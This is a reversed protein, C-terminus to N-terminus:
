AESTRQEQRLPLWLSVATGKDVESEMHLQGMHGEIINRCIALGLGTGRPKGKTFFPEFVHPLLDAPIGKGRDKVKVMIGPRSNQLLEFATIEIPEGGVPSAEIANQLVNILVQKLQDQDAYIPGLTPSISLQIKIRREGLSVALIKVVEDILDQVSLQTASLERPRAYDVIQNVIRDLRRTEKLIGGIDDRRPDRQEFEELLLSATSGIGVLPNRIEHAIGAAVQGLTALKESRSVRSQLDELATIDINFGIYVAVGEGEKTIPIRRGLVKRIGGDAHVFRFVTEYPRGQEVAQAFETLVRERDEPHICKRFAAPDTEEDPNLGALVQNYRNSFTVETGKTTLIGLPAHDVLGRYKSESQALSENLLRLTAESKEVQNLHERIQSSMAHMVRTLDGIEDQRDLVPINPVVGESASGVDKALNTLPVTISRAILYLAGVILAFTLVGGVLIIFLNSARDERILALEEVVRQQELQDFETMRERIEAMLARGRGAEIYHVADPKRGAKIARILEDKEKMLQTVVQQIAQFRALQDSSIRSALDRGVADIGEQAVRYPRLYPLEETLVYGRFGTELDVVLRMYQAAAKQALYLNELRNEDHSLTEGSRYTMVSLMLLAALPIFSILLFKRRISADGVLSLLHKRM